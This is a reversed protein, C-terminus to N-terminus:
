DHSVRVAAPTFPKALTVADPFHVVPSCELINNEITARPRLASALTPECGTGILRDVFEVGQMFSHDQNSVEYMWAGFRGRSYIQQAELTCFVDRLIANRNLTPVPYGYELRRHWRSIIHTEQLLGLTQLSAIVSRIVEAREMNQNYPEAVEAMLSWTARADPVCGASLNSLVTLRYFPIDPQPFYSWCQHALSEPPQGRLGIGIIHTRTSRLAAICNLSNPNGLMGALKPLPVTSLMFEYQFRDGNVTTVLKAVPDITGVSTRWNFWDAPLRDAVAKWISGTGGSKPYRFTANPGWAAADTKLCLNRLVDQLLPAAVRETVWTAGMQELPCQWLKENYPRMFLDTVATGFTVHCWEAFNEPRLPSTPRQLLGQVSDWMQQPPLYHLHMQFPYPIFRGHTWVWTSRQHHNWSEPPLATNLVQDYYDYHSFQLHSGLDWTFGFDDNFSAALGGPRDSAELILCSHDTSEQWRYAAGLGTPGAGIILFPVQRIV